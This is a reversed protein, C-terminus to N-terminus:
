FLAGLAQQLRRTELVVSEGMKCSNLNVYTFYILKGTPMPKRQAVNMLIAFGVGGAIGVAEFLSLPKM